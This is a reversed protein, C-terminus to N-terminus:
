SNTICRFNHLLGKFVISCFDILKMGSTYTSTYFTYIYIHNIYNIWCIQWISLLFWPTVNERVIFTHTKCSCGRFTNKRRRQKVRFHRRSIEWRKQENYRYFLLVFVIVFCFLVFCILVFWILVFCFLVFWFLVFVFLSLFCNGVVRVPTPYDNLFPYVSPNTCSVM